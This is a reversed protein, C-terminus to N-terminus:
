GVSELEAGTSAVTLSSLRRCWTEGWLGRLRVEEEDGSSSPLPFAVWM